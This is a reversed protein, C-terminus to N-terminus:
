LHMQKLTSNTILRLTVTTLTDIGKQVLYRGSERRKYKLSTDTM